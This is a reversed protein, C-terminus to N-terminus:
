ELGLNPLLRLMGFGFGEPTLSRVEFLAVMDKLSPNGRAAGTVGKAIILGCYGQSKQCRDDWKARARQHIADNSDYETFIHFTQDKTQLVGLDYSLEGWQDEGPIFGLSQLGGAAQISEILKMAKPRSTQLLIIPFGDAMQPFDIDAPQHCKTSLRLSDLLEWPIRGVQSMTGPPVTEPNIVPVGFSSMVIEESEDEALDDVMSALEQAFEPLTALTVTMLSSTPANDPEASAMPVEISYEGSLKPFSDPNLDDAHDQWFLHLSQLAALVMLAEEEYLNPRMGELPHLNGFEPQM